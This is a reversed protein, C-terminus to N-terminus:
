EATVALRQSKSTYTGEPSEVVARYIYIGRPVRAGSGDCLDWTCSMTSEM